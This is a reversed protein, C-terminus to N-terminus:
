TNNIGLLSLTIKTGNRGNGNMVWEGFVRRFTRHKVAMVAGTSLQHLYKM